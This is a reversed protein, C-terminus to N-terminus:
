KLIQAHFPIQVGGGKRGKRGKMYPLGELKSDLYSILIITVILISVIVFKTVVTPKWLKTINKLWYKENM